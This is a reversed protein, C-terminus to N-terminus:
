FRFKKRFGSESFNRGAAPHYLFFSFSHFVEIASRAKIVLGTTVLIFFQHHRLQIFNLGFLMNDTDHM